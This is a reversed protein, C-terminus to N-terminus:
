TRENTEDTMFPDFPEVSEDASAPRSTEPALPEKVTVKRVVIRTGRVAVVEILSDAEIMLGDGTAHLREGNVLVMGGPTMLNLAKGQQGILSELRAQEAQYPTVEELTPAPLLVRNGLSTKTLLQFAGVVSAPILMAISAVYAWWYFPSNEYWSTYAYYGSALFSCACMVSIAGGSPVFLEAFILAIGLLLFIPVLLQPDM